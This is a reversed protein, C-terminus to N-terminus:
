LFEVDNFKVHEGSIKRVYDRQKQAIHLSWYWFGFLLTFVVLGYVDDVMKRALVAYIVSGFFFAIGFISIVTHITVCVIYPFFMRSNQQATGIFLCYAIGSNLLFGIILGGFYLSNNITSNAPFDWLACALVTSIISISVFIGAILKVKSSSDM